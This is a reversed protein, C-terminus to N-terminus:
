KMEKVFELVEEIHGNVKVARWEKVLNGDKDILFTSRVIGMYEKGMMKKLQWVGYDECVKGDEDSLLLFPLNHKEIFGNHKKISDKSIGLIITESSQFEEFSDRFSCAETTCGPTNDKPYFYVIVNKGKFDELSVTNGNSAPLSFNKAKM